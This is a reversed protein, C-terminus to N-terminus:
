GLAFEVAARAHIETTNFLPIRTDEQKILLPIETCGLIIGEAGQKVLQDIIELFRKKSEPKFEENLLENIITDHIFLRDEKEPVMSEIGFGKLKSHYFDKEMTYKTGLLGVKSLKQNKVERATAEGIHILPLEFESLVQSAFIHLTNAGLLLCDAGAKKIASVAAQIVPYADELKRKKIKLDIENFNVSYLIIKASNLGGLKQYTYQNILRYYDVTSVWSTGGVLGITKM